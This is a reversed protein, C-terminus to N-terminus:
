RSKVKEYNKAWQENADRNMCYVFIAAIHSLDHIRPVIQRGIQGSVILVLRSYKHGLRIFKDCDDANDFTELLPHTKRLQEQIGVNEESEHVSSDLWLLCISYAPVSLTISSMVEATTEESPIQEVDIIHFNPAPNALSKVRFCFGPPLITESERPFASYDKIVKGDYCKISFLTRHKAKDLFIETMHVKDSCSSVGWWVHVSDPKYQARLNANVGRWVRDQVSPLKELGSMFLHLYDYFPVVRIRNEDRLARNFWEYFSQKGEPWQLSYLYLAAAQDQTLGNKPHKCEDLSLKVHGSLDDISKEIPKVADELSPVPKNPPKPLPQLLKDPEKNVNTFRKRDQLFLNSSAAMAFCELLFTYSIDHDIQRLLLSFMYKIVIQRETVTADTFTKCLCFPLCVSM